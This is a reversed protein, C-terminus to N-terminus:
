AARRRKLIEKLLDVFVPLLAQWPFAGQVMPDGNCVAEMTALAEERSMDAMVTVSDGLQGAGFRILDTAANVLDLWGNLDTPFQGKAFALVKKLSDIPFM